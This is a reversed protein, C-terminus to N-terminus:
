QVQYIFEGEEGCQTLGNVLDGRYKVTVRERTKAKEQLAKLVENDKVCYVDEQSSALDTKVYARGTKFIIGQKQAATIFGTHEGESTQIPIGSFSIMTLPVTIVLTLIFVFAGVGGEGDALAALALFVGIVFIIIVILLM